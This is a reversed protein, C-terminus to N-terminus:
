RERVTVPAFYDNPGVVGRAEVSADARAAAALRAIASEDFDRALVPEIEGAGGIGARRIALVARQQEIRRIDEDRRALPSRRGRSHASRVAAGANAESVREL